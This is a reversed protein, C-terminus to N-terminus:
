ATLESQTEDGCREQSEQKDEVQTDLTKGEIAETSEKTEPISIDSKPSETKAQSEERTTTVAAKRKQRRRPHM